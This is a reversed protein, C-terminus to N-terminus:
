VAEEVAPEAAGEPLAPPPGGTVFDIARVLYNPLNTRYERQVLDTAVVSELDKALEYAVKTKAKDGEVQGYIQIARDIPNDSVAPMDDGPGHIIQRIREGYGKRILCYEFTWEESVFVQVNQQGVENQLAAAKEAPDTGIMEGDPAQRTVWYHRNGPKLDKFGVDASIAKDARAPWLDLDRVCAIKVGLWKTADPVAQHRQFIKAFRAYATSGVNVISVGYDELPKGILRAFTPLLINEGDGEVIIVGRAFFLNSKTVDLFKELFTYDDADLLTAGEKLPFALGDKMIILSKLPAKSALNPSHTTMITQLIPQGAEDNQDRVFQLFKMQLQPHLHAEPEEILLLPFEERELELLILETAMFLVNNYGLGQLPKTEDLTLSFRQLIETFAREREPVSMEELAKSGLMQIALNFKGEDGTFTLNEFNRLIRDRSATVGRNERATQSAAILGQLLTRFDEGTRAFETAASLIQVLRSGRGASLESEADRLPKLYTASLYERIEREIAPGEKDKGSRLETRIMRNGRRLIETRQALLNVYLVAKREDGVGTREHTLHEVFVHAHQPTIGDFRIQIEFSNGHNHFDTETVRSWETSNTELTLKIADLVATKGSNNEGVIVNLGAGFEVAFDEFLRFNKISVASIHM